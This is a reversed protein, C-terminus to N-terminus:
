VQQKVEFNGKRLRSEFDRSRKEAREVEQEGDPLFSEPDESIMILAEFIDCFFEEFQCFIQNIREEYIKQSRTEIQLSEPDIGNSRQTEPQISKVDQDNKRELNQLQRINKAKILALRSSDRDPRYLEGYRGYFFFPDLDKKILFIPPIASGDIDSM